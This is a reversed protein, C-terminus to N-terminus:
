NEQSAVFSAPFFDIGPPEQHPECLTLSRLRIVIKLSPNLPPNHWGQITKIASIGSGCDDDNHSFSFAFGPPTLSRQETIPTECQGCTIELREEDDVSGSDSIDSDVFVFYHLGHNLSPSGSSSIHWCDEWYIICSFDFLVLISCSDTFFTRRGVREVSL